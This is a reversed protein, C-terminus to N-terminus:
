IHCNDWSGKVTIIWFLLYFKIGLLIVKSREMIDVSESKRLIDSEDM